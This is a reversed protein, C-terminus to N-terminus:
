YTLHCRLVNLMLEDDDSEQGSVFHSLYRTWVTSGRCVGQQIGWDTIRPRLYLLVLVKTWVTNWRCVGQQIESKQSSQSLTPCTGKDLSYEMSMCRASIDRIRPRLCLSVLWYRQWPPLPTCFMSAKLVYAEKQLLVTLRIKHKFNKQLHGSLFGPWKM